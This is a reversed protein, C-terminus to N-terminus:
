AFRPQLPGILPDDDRHVAAAIGQVDGGRRGNEDEFRRPLPVHGASSFSRAPDPKPDAVVKITMTIVEAPPVDKEWPRRYEWRLTQEGPRLGRIRTSFTGGSGVRPPQVADPQYDPGQIELCGTIPPLAAVAWSFGTTPNGGLRVDLTQGQRLTITKGAQERGAVLDPLLEASGAM